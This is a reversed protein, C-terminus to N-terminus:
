LEISDILEMQHTEPGCLMPQDSDLNLVFSGDGFVFDITGESESDNPCPFGIQPLVRVRVRDGLSFPM